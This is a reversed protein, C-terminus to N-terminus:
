NLQSITAGTWRIGLDAGALSFEDFATSMFSQGNIKLCAGNSDLFFEISGSIPAGEIVCEPKAIWASGDHVWFTVVAAQESSRQILIAHMDTDAGRGRYSVVSVHSHGLFDLTYHCSLARDSSSGIPRKLFLCLDDPPASWGGGNVPSPAGYILDFDKSSLSLEQVRLSTQVRERALVEACDRDLLGSFGQFPVRHHAHDEVDVLRVDHVAGYDGLYLYDVAQWKERDVIWIASASYKREGRGARQSEGVLVYDASAALGRTYIPSGSTWLTKNEQLDVLSGAESHCSVRQGDDTVWINHLGTRNEISELSLLDLAPYSFIALKSGKNHGHAIVYLRGAKEFVSNVHDGSAGDL